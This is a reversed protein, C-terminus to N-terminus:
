QPVEERILGMLEGQVAPWNKENMEELGNLIEQLVAPYNRQDLDGSKVRELVAELTAPNEGEGQVGGSQVTAGLRVTGKQLAKKRCMMLRHMQKYEPGRTEWSKVREHFRREDVGLERAAKSRTGHALIYLFCRCDEPEVRRVFDLLGGALLGRVEELEKRKEYEGKAVAELGRALGDVKQEVRALVETGVVVGGDAVRRAKGGGAAPLVAAAGLGAFLARPDGKVRFGGGPALEVHAELACFRAGVGNLLEQARGDVPRSTPALLVFPQRLRAALEAVAQRFDDRERILSLMVPVDGACAAGIQSVGGIRWDGAKVDFDFAKCLAWGVKAWNVDLLVVEAPTLPIDDCSWPDCRCVGVFAGEGKPVVRHECGCGSPCPFSDSRGRSGMFQKRFLGFDTGMGTQWVAPVGIGVEDLCQWVGAM